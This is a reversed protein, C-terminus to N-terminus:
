RPTRARARHIRTLRYGCILPGRCSRRRLPLEQEQCGLSGLAFAARQEPIRGLDDKAFTRGIRPDHQNAFLGSILFITGAPREGSRGTTNEIFCQLLDTEIAPRDIDGIRHLMEFELPSSLSAQVLMWTAIFDLSAAPPELALEGYDFWLEDNSKSNQCRARELSRWDSQSALAAPEQVPGIPARPNCRNM